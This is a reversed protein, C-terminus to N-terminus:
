FGWYVRQNTTLAAIQAASFKVPWFGIEGVLGHTQNAGGTNAFATITGTGYATGSDTGTTATNDISISANNAGTAFVFQTAHWAGGFAGTNIVSGDNLYANDASGIMAGIQVVTDSVLIQQGV